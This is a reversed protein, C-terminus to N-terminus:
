KAHLLKFLKKIMLKFLHNKLTGVVYTKNSFHSFNIKLLKSKDLPKSGKAKAVFIIHIIIFNM